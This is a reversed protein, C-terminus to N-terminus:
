FISSFFRKIRHFFGTPHPKEPPPPQIVTDLHPQRMAADGDPLSEATQVPASQGSAAGTTSGNPTSTPRDGAHFVLPADVQAHVENPQPPPLPATEPGNSLRTPPTSSADAGHPQTGPSGSSSTSASTTSPTPPAPLTGGLTARQPMESAPLAPASTDTKMVAPPPPCGCELPVNTDVKDIQGGHFVAQETPRVQYIRDGMLESVIASSTNGTLSRVCTNGHSDASVAFHFHGPGAFMIRFDPTLVADASAGLSYHTELGGTSLGLMLDRKTRSPTISVTTGPCVRIEGGRGLQLVATESSATVSSGAALRTGAFVIAGAGGTVPVIAPPEGASLGAVSPAPPSDKNANVDEAPKLRVMLRNGAGDWTYGYPAQLDLVIRTIPPVQSYQDARIAIINEKGVPIQKQTLGLKSNPLDIVLRPPRDLVRVEPIVPGGRTLIEVAPAGKEQVIRVSKVTPPPGFTQAPAPLALLGIALLGIILAVRVSKLAGPHLPKRAPTHLSCIM